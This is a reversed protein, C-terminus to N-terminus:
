TKQTTKGQPKGVGVRYASKLVGKCMVHDIWRMRKSKLVMILNPSYHLRHHVENHLKKCSGKMEDRKPGSTRWLVRKEFVRFNHKERLTLSWTECRCMM